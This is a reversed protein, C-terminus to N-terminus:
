PNSGAEFRRVHQAAWGALVVSMTVIMIFVVSLASVQGTEGNGLMSFMAVSFVETGTAYMLSSVSFERFFSIFALFFAATLAPALLPLLVRVSTFLAGAGAVRGAAELDPSIQVVQSSIQRTGIPLFMVVYAIGMIILTGYIATGIGFPLFLYSWLFAPALAIRPVALPLLGGAENSRSLLSRHRTAMVVIITAAAVAIAGASLSLILSNWTARLLMENDFLARYHELSATRLLEASPTGIYAVLSGYVVAVLPLLLTIAAFSTCLGFALWRASGLDVKAAGGSRGGVTVYRHSHRTALVYAAFLALVVVILVVSLASADGWRTPTEIRLSRYIEGSFVSVRAPFGFILPVEISELGVIFVLLTSTLVAPRAVGITALLARGRGAGAVRAAHEIDPDIRRFAASVLLFVLPTLMTTQVFIMGPFSFVNFRVGLLPDLVYQNLLGTRESLLLSWATTGVLAPILLPVVAVVQWVRPWPVNTRQVIWALGVGITVCLVTTWTAFALSTRALQWLSDNEAIRRYNDLTWDGPQFPDGTHFSGYLLQWLPLGVFVVLMVAIAVNVLNTAGTTRRVIGSMPATM